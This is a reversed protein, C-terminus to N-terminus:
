VGCMGECENGFLAPQREHKFEVQDLPTRTSHLYPTSSMRDIQAMSAQLRKEFEVALAFEEPEDRKLRIWETDSHFPCFRCASRPPTPYGKAEMWDLCDNRSMGIEILPYYHKIWAKQSDKQRHAEDTSIGLWMMVGATKYEKISQQVPEIKWFATCQRWLTGTEIGDLTFAPIRAQLYKEGTKRSTRIKLANEIVDTRGVRSVPFPLQTELWDLWNYVSQPESQTDAFIACEPMPTIEGHAAMLAMTSSQVGAGLSIIHKM